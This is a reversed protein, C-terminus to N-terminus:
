HFDLENSGDLKMLVKRRNVQKYNRKQPFETRVLVCVRVSWFFKKVLWSWAFELRVGLLSFPDCAFVIHTDCMVLPYIERQCLGCARVGWWKICWRSEITLHSNDTTWAYSANCLWLCLFRMMDVLPVDQMRLNEKDFLFFCRIDGFNWSLM